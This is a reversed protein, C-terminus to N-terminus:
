WADWHVKEEDYREKVEREEAGHGLVVMGIPVVTEPLSLWTHLADTLRKVPHLGCWVTGLGM